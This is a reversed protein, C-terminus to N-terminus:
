MKEVRIQYLANPLAVAGSPNGTPNNLYFSVQGVASVWANIQVGRTNTSAGVYAVNGFEAGPVNVVQVPSSAGVALSPAAYALTGEFWLTGAKAWVAETTVNGGSVVASTVCSRGISNEAGTTFSFEGAAYDRGSLPTSLNQQIKRANGDNGLILGGPLLTVAAGTQAIPTSRGFTSAAGTTLMTMASVFNGFDFAVGANGPLLKGRFDQSAVSGIRMFTMEGGDARIMEEGFAAYGYAGFGARQAETTYRFSGYGGNSSRFAGAGASIFEMATYETFETQLSGGNVFSPPAVHCVGVTGVELYGGQFVSRANVNACLIGGSPIYTGTNSWAPFAGSAVGAGVYYWISNNTGPVTTKGIDPVDSILNYLSGNYYVRGLSRSGASHVAWATHTNGLFANDMIGGCGASLVSLGVSSGANADIGSAYFGHKGSAQLMVRNIQWDNANGATLNLGLISDTSSNAVINLNNGPFNIISVDELVFRARAWFGHKTMDTGGLSIIGLRRYASGDAAGQSFAPGVMDINTNHRNVVVGHTNQAFVLQTNTAGGGTGGGQGQFQWNVHDNHPATHYYQGVGLHVHRGFLYGTTGRGQLFIALAQMEAFAPSCDNAATPTGVYPVAGFGEYDWEEDAIIWRTIVGNEDKAKFTSRPFAALDADTLTDRRDYSFCGFYPTTHHSTVVRRTGSPIVMGSGLSGASRLEAFSAVSMVNGGADGKDGRFYNPFSDRTLRADDAWSKASRTSGGAPPQPSEAWDRARNAEYRAGRDTTSVAGPIPADTNSVAYARALSASGKSDQASASARDALEALLAAGELVVITDAVRVITDAM